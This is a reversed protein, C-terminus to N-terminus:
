ASKRRRVAALGLLGIGLLALSAPEPVETMRYQGNAGSYLSTLRGFEDEVLRDALPGFGAAELMAKQDNITEQNESLSLNSTAFGFLFNSMLDLTSFDAGQSGGDDFFFYGPAFWTAKTNLSSAGNPAGDVSSIEAGGSIIAFEAIKTGGFGGVFLELTGDTFSTTGTSLDGTGGGSFSAVVQNSAFPLYFGSDKGTIEAYGVQQLNFTTAGTYTNDSYIAGTFDFFENVRVSATAGGGDPDFWFSSYAASAVTPVALCGAAALSAVITKVKSM